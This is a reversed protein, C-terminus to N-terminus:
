WRQGGALRPLVRQLFGLFDIADTSILLERRWVAYLEITIEQGAHDVLPAARRRNRIHVRPLIAGGLGLTVWDELAGYSLARGPYEDVEVGAAVLVSRTATALGCLDETMLLRTNSLQALPVSGSSAPERADSLYCLPDALVRVRKRGRQKALGAGFVFDLSGSDLRSELDSSSAEFLVTRLNPKARLFPEMLLGLRAAGMLPTFGLRLVPQPPAVISEALDDLDALAVLVAEIKKLVGGGSPTLELGRAGRRFIPIQLAAELESVAASVTPQAVGCERAAATFSGLRGAAEAYRLASMSYM